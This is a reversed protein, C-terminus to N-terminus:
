GKRAEEELARRLLREKVRFLRPSLSVHYTHPNRFRKYAPDLRELNRRTNQRM